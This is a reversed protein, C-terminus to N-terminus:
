LCMNLVNSECIRLYSVPVAVRRSPAAALLSAQYSKRYAQRRKGVVRLVIAMCSSRDSGAGQVRVQAKAMATLM